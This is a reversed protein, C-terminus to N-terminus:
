DAGRCVGSVELGNFLFITDLFFPQPPVPPVVWTASFVTVVDSFM